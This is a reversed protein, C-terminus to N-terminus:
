LDLGPRSALLRQVETESLRDIQDILAEELLLAGAHLTPTDFFDRLSLQVGAAAQIRGVVQTASVSHGGLAFFDDDVGVRDVQLVEAWVEALLREATTRPAVYAVSTPRSASGQLPLASRDVKGSRTLPLQDLFQWAAPIMHAPLQNALHQRLQTTDPPDTTPDTTIWATLRPQHQPDPRVGVAAATVAPHTMLVTEVEGPEIRYGRVKVQDDLRGLFELQGDPRWRVRDGTRYLRSGDGAFLDAVFRQATLDPRGLYGRAVGVGGVYLEGAVGIPVPVLHHDLVFATTNAIPAGIAVRDDASECRAGTVDISAETPGYLNQLDADLAVRCDAALDRTLAEGSCVVLRLDACRSVDAGDLFVRLMSPVFHVVSIRERAILEALYAPDRHGAPRALVLRAGVVLPGLLEWLSVDFTIPTKHLFRDGADVRQGDRMWVLRNLLGAHHGVVGKPLGTSGSTFFLYAASDPYVAVAPATDPLAAIARAEDADDLCVVLSTGDAVRTRFCRHTLVVTASAQGILMALRDPPDTPDLPAYVGGAKLVALLCVVLDLGREVCVGVVAERDVGLQRLRQALRNAQRELEAYTLRGDEAVLAVVDPTRVAQAGILEHVGARPVEAAKGNWKVLLRDREDDGLLPLESMRRGPDAVAGELLRCYHRALRQVTSHEFLDTAYQITGVLCEGAESVGLTLDFKATSVPVPMGCVALEGLGVEEAAADAGFTFMVQFLPTRALDREPQLEEVLQEFPLDQHGYAGLAAERVRGLVEV